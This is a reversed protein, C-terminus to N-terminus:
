AYDGDHPHLNSISILEVKGIKSESQNRGKQMKTKELYRFRNSAITLIEIMELLSIKERIDVIPSNDHEIAILLSILSLMPIHNLRFTVISWLTVCCYVDSFYVYSHLLQVLKLTDRCGSVVNVVDQFLCGLGGM